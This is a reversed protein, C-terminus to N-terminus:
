RRERIARRMAFGLRTGGGLGLEFAPVFGHSEPGEIGIAAVLLPRWRAFEDYAISGGALGYPTWRYQRFPDLMFRGTVDLRTSFGATGRHWALGAGLTGSARLYTGMPTSLALGLQAASTRGAIADARVERQVWRRDLQAKAGTAATVVLLVGLATSRV